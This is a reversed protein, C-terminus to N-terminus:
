ECAVILYQNPDNNIKHFADIYRNDLKDSLQERNKGLDDQILLSVMAKLDNITAKRHTINM